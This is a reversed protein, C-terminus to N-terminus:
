KIQRHFVLLIKLMLKVERGAHKSSWLSSPYLFCMSNNHEIKACEECTEVAFAATHCSLFLWFYSHRCCPCGLGMDNPSGSPCFPIGQQGIPSLSVLCRRGMVIKLTRDADSKGSRPSFSNHPPSFTSNRQNWLHNEIGVGNLCPWM